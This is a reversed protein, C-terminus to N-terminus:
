VALLIRQGTIYTIGGSIAPPLVATAQVQVDNGSINVQLLVTNTSAFMDSYTNMYATTGDHLVM